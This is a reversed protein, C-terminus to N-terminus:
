RGGPSLVREPGPDAPPPTPQSSPQPTPDVTPQPTPDVKPFRVPKMTMDDKDNSSSTQQDAPLPDGPQRMTPPPAAAKDDTKPGSPVDCFDVEHRNPDPVTSWYDGMENEAHIVPIQGTKALEVRIVRNGNIRVFEVEKPPEGYIWEEFPMDGERERSKHPPPGLAALVMERNMGVLVQHALITQKLKPPLTDVYAQTPSKVAFDVLPMLLQEVQAGTVAPVFKNFVLVIRSGVPETGDDTALPATGGGSGIEIHRLFRHKKDPGGNLDFVIRDKEVILNTIVVRKGAEVSIGQERLAHEYDSGSPSANGNAHLTLGRHGRVLPRISFGQEAELV